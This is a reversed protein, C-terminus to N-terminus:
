GVTASIESTYVTGSTLAVGLDNKIVVYFHPPCYGLSQAVSFTARETTSSSAIPVVGIMRLNPEDTTTTGSTPGSRYNTGDLSEQIFVVVQKNGSPTNTTAVSVEVAVDLPQNVTCDYATSNEVYTASALASLTTGSYALSTRSGVPQKVTNTM